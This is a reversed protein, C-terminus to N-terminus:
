LDLIPYSVIGALFEHLVIDLPSLVINDDDAFFWM